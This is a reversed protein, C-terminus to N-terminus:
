CCSPMNDMLAVSSTPLCSSANGNSSMSDSSEEETALSERNASNMTSILLAVAAECTGQAEGVLLATDRLDCARAVVARDAAGKTGRCILHLLVRVTRLFGRLLQNAQKRLLWGWQAFWHGKKVFATIQDSLQFTNTNKGHLGAILEHLQAFIDIAHALICTKNQDCLFDVFETKKCDMEYAPLDETSLDVQLEFADTNKLREVLMNEQTAAEIRRKVTNNSLPMARLKNVETEGCIIRVM